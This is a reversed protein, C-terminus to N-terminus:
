WVRREGGWFTLVRDGGGLDGHGRGSVGGGANEM